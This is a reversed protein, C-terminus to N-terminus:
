PVVVEVKRAHAPCLHGWDDAPDIIWGHSLAEREALDADRERTPYWSRCPFRGADWSGNCGILVVASM